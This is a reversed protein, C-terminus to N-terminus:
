EATLRLGIIGIVILTISLLRGVTVPEDLMIIGLIVTGAAGVGVWVSYATGVPLARMAYGLLLVSALMTVATFLSPWLRSFGESYKLGMAWAVEFLGALILISWNMFHDAKLLKSRIRNLLVSDFYQCGTAVSPCSSSSSSFFNRLGATFLHGPPLTIFRLSIVLIQGPYETKKSGNWRRM